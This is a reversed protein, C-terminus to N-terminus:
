PGCHMNPRDLEKYTKVHGIVMESEDEVRPPTRENGVISATSVSAHSVLICHIILATLNRPWYPYGVTWCSAVLWRYDGHGCGARLSTSVLPYHLIKKSLM